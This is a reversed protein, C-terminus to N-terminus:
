KSRGFISRKHTSNFIALYCTSPQLTKYSQDPHSPRMTGWGNLFVTSPYVLVLILVRPDNLSALQIVLGGEGKAQNTLQCFENDMTSAIRSYENDPQIFHIGLGLLVMQYRTIPRM